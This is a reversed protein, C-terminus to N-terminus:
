LSNYLEQKRDNLMQIIKKKEPLDYAGSDDVYTFRKDFLYKARDSTYMESASEIDKLLDIQDLTFYSKYM